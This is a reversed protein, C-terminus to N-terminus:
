AIVPNTLAGLISDLVTELDEELDQALFRRVTYGHEQLLRDKRRDRCCAEADGLHQLHEHPSRLSGAERAFREAPQPSATLDKAMLKIAVDRELCRDRARYVKGMGYDLERCRRGCREAKYERMAIGDPVRM